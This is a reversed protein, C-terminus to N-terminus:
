TGPRAILFAFALPTGGDVPCFKPDGSSRYMGAREVQVRHGSGTDVTRGTGVKVATEGDDVTIVFPQADYCNDEYTSPCSAADVTLHLPAFFEPDDPHSSNAANGAALLDGAAGRVTWAGRDAGALAPRRLHFTVVAGQQLAVALEPSDIWTIFIPRTEGADDSCDLQWEPLVECEVDLVIADGVIPWDGLDISFGAAVPGEAECEAPPGGTTPETMGAGTGTGTGGGEEAGSSSTPALEDVPGCAALVM